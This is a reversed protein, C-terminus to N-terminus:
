PQPPERPGSARARGDTGSIGGAVINVLFFLWFHTMANFLPFLGKIRSKFAFNFAQTPFYRMVNALNGKWLSTPGQETIQLCM